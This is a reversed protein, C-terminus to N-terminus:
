ETIMRPRDELFVWTGTLDIVDYHNKLTPPFTAFPAALEVVRLVAADLDRYGSSRDVHVAALTGDSNISITAVLTDYIRNRALKPYNSGGLREIKQRWGEGYFVLQIDRPDRGVLSGRRQRNPEVAPKPVTPPLPRDASESPRGVSAATSSGAAARAAAAAALANAQAQQAQRQAEAAAERAVADARAKAATQEALRREAEARALDEARKREDAERKEQAATQEALRREAETRAMDEARKRDEAEQRAQAAVRAAAEQRDAAVRALEETRRREEAEHQAQAAALEAQRAQEAVKAQEQQRPEITERAESTPTPLVDDTKAEPNVAPASESPPASDTSIPEPDAPPTIWTSDEAAALVPTRAKATTKAVPQAKPTRIAVPSVHAAVATISVTAEALPPPPAPRQLVAYLDPVSARRANFPNGFWPLGDDLIGFQLSLLAAHLVLSLLLAEPLRHSSPVM